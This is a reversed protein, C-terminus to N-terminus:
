KRKADTVSRWWQGYAPPINRDSYVLIFRFPFCWWLSSYFPIIPTFNEPSFISILSYIFSLLFHSGAAILPDNANIQDKRGFGASSQGIKPNKQTKVLSKWRSFNLTLVQDKRSVSTETLKKSTKANKKPWKAM